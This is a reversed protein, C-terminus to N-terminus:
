NKLNEGLRERQGRSREKEEERISGTDQLGGPLLSSPAACWPGQRAVAEPLKQRTGAFLIDKEERPEEILTFHFCAASSM